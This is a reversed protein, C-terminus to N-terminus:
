GGVSGVVLARGGNPEDANHARLIFFDAILFRVFNVGFAGDPYAERSRLSPM